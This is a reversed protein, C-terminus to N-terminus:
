LDPPYCTQCMHPWSPSSCSPNLSLPRCKCTRIHGPSSTGCDKIEYLFQYTLKIVSLEAQSKIRQLSSKRRAHLKWSQVDLTRGDSVNWIRLAATPKELLTPRASPCIALLSPISRNSLDSREVSAMLLGSWNLPKRGVSKWLHCYRRGQRIGESNGTRKSVSACLDPCFKWDDSKEGTCVNEFSSEGRRQADPLQPLVEDSPSIHSPLSSLKSSLLNTRTM